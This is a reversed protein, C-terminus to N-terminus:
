KGNHVSKQKMEMIVGRGGMKICAHKTRSSIDWAEQEEAVYKVNVDEKANGRRAIRFGEPPDHDM